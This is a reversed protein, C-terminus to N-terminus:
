TSSRDRKKINRSRKESKELNNLPNEEDQTDLEKLDEGEELIVFQGKSEELEEDEEEEPLNRAGAKNLCFKPIILFKVVVVTVFFGFIAILLEIWWFIGGFRGAEAETIFIILIFLTMGTLWPVLAITKRKPDSPFPRFNWRYM